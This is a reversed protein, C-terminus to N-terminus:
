ERAGNAEPDKFKVRPSTFQALLPHLELELALERGFVEDPL